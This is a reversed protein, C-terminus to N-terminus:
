VVKQPFIDAARRIKIEKPLVKGLYKEMIPMFIHEIGYHGADIVALGREAADLGEHHSIDGTIYVEAGAGLALEIEGGGSGPCIAACKLKKGSDLDGFVTVHPINFTEKVRRALEMLTMEEPLSGSLGIGYPKGDALSGLVELVKTDSLGLMEAARDAMCGPAADFNTHMAYCSIDKQILRLIRRGVFDTDNVKKIGRFILPHHSVILEAGEELAEDIVAETIDLALIVKHIEAQRHGILFGANDFEMQLELPALTCLYEFIENVSRM